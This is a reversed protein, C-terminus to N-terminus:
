DKYLALKRQKREEDMLQATARAMRISEVDPRNNRRAIPAAWATPKLEQRISRPQRIPEEDGDISIVGHIPGYTQATTSSEDNLYIAGNGSSTYKILDAKAIIPAFCIAMVFIFRINNTRM